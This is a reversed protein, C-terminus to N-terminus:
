FQNVEKASDIMVKRPTVGTDIHIDRFSQLLSNVITSLAISGYEDSFWELTGRDFEIQKRITARSM